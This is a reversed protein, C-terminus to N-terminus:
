FALGSSKLQYTLQLENRGPESKFEVQDMLSQILYLGWGRYDPRESRDPPTQPLPKQGHDIIKVKLDTTELMFIIAVEVQPNLGNGHEIANTCAESVATKLDEVKDPAFGMKEALCAATSMVVKEYGLESPIQLEITRM